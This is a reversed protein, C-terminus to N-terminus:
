ILKEKEIADELVTRASSLNIFTERLPVIGRDPDFGLELCKKLAAAMAEETLTTSVSWIQSLYDRESPTPEDPSM